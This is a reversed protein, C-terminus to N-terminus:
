DSSSSRLGKSQDFVKKIRQLAEIQRPQCSEFQEHTMFFPTVYSGYLSEIRNVELLNHTGMINDRTYQLSDDFSNQVHSQAAFHIVHSIVNTQFIHKLMRTLSIIYYYPTFSFYLNLVNFKM